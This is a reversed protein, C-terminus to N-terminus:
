TSQTSLVQWGEVHVPVSGEREIWLALDQAPRHDVGFTVIRGQSDIGEFVVVTGHDAVLGHALVTGSM